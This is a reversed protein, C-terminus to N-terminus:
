TRRESMIADFVKRLKLDLNRLTLALMSLCLHQSYLVDYISLQTM